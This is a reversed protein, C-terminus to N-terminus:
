NCREPYLTEKLRKLCEPCITRTDYYDFLIITEGCIICDRGIHGLAYPDCIEVTGYNTFTYEEM